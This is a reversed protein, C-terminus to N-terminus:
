NIQRVRLQKLTRLAKYVPRDAISHCNEISLVRLDFCGFNRSTRPSRPRSTSSISPTGGLLDRNLQMLPCTPDTVLINVPKPHEAFLMSGLAYEEGCLYDIAKGSIQLLVVFKYQNSDANEM